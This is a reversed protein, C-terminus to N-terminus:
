TAFYEAQVIKRWNSGDRFGPGPQTDNTITLRGGGCPLTMEYPFLAAIKDAVENAHTAFKGVESVVTVQMFGVHARGGSIRAPSQGPVMQVVLYPRAQSGPVNQNDWYIPPAGTLTKLQRGLAEAIDNENM